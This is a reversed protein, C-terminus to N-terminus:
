RGGGKRKGNPEEEKGHVWEIEDGDARGERWGMGGPGGLEGEETDAPLTKKLVGLLELGAGMATGPVALNYRTGVKVVKGPNMIDDP